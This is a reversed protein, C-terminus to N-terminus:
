DAPRDPYTLLLMYETAATVARDPLEPHSGKGPMKMYGKNAHESLVAQWLPSRDSWAEADGTVPAGNVGTEHCGACVINYAAEGSMDSLDTPTERETVADAAPRIPKSTDSSEQTCGVAFMGIIAIYMLRYM